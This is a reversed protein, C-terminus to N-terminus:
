GRGKIHRWLILAGFLVVAAVALTQAVPALQGLLGGAPAAYDLVALVGGGGIVGVAAKADPDERVTEPPRPLEVAFGPTAERAPFPQGWVRAPGIDVHVFNSRPYTGIGLFGVARAAAIFTEPDHNAMSIDFATGDMHKSRTAGGVRANHEPSRYASVITLPKGLRTRLAQLKDLADPVIKVRGTGRCAIEEPSFNPWRWAREPVDRWSAYDNM